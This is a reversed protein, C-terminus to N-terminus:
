QLGTASRMSARARAFKIGPCVILVILVVVVVVVVVVLPNPRKPTQANQRRPKRPTPAKADKYIQVNEAARGRGRRGGKYQEENIKQSAQSVKEHCPKINKLASLGKSDQSEGTGSVILSM